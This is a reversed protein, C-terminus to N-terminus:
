CQAVKATLAAWSLENARAVAGASLQTLEAQERTVIKVIANALRSVVQVEDADDVPIVIGCAATVMVGPGGLDLCIVPIGNSLSELIALGGSDHLSPFIMATFSSWLDSLRERPIEGAFQVADLAGHMRVQERLWAEAPGAGVLTLTVGPVTERAKALARIALHIGKWHLLRGAYILRPQLTPSQEHRLSADGSSGIALQIATKTHWKQPILLLSDKSAVFIKKASSYAPRTLPSYRQVSIRFDRFLERIRHRVLMSRRLQLPAREGGAIPGIVFPIGLRGMFSGYEMSAFTVHYVCDFGISRHHRVAQRYAGWQWLVCYVSLLRARKKLMLAWKPLDYYIFNLGEAKSMPDAEIVERNNARTLVWVEDACARMHLARQWGVEQESGKNPECAYASLLVKM